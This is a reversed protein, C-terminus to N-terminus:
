MWVNASIGNLKRIGNQINPHIGQVCMREVFVNGYDRIFVIEESFYGLEKWLYKHHRLMFLYVINHYENLERMWNLIIDYWRIHGALMACM